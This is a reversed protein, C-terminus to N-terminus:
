LVAEGERWNEVRLGMFGAFDSVNATVLILDNVAAIAAIQGDVYPPTRGQAVLRAREKAHWRAAADDYALIPVTPAVVQFLYTEIVARKRSKTLRYCGFLLEHWVISAIAIEARYKELRQLIAEKPRARMPESIINTDLLCKLSM